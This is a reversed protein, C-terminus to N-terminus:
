AVGLLFQADDEAARIQIKELIKWMFAELEPELGEGTISILPQGRDVARAKSETLDIQAQILDKELQLIEDRRRNEADIWEAIDLAALGSAGAFADVLGVLTEGTNVFSESILDASSKFIEVAAEAEAIDLRAKWEVATQVTAAQAKIREIQTDIEGQLMIELRKETPIEDIKAKAADFSPKNPDAYIEIIGKDNIKALLGDAVQFSGDDVTARIDVAKDDPIASIADDFFKLDQVAQLTKAELTVAISDPIDNLSVTMAQVQEVVKRTEEEFEKTADLHSQTANGAGLLAAVWDFTADAADHFAPVYTDLTFGIAAGLGLSSLGALLPALAASAATIAGILGAGAATSGFASVLSVIQTGALLSIAGGLINLSSSLFGINEGILVISKAAGLLNGAFQQTAADSNRFEDIAAGLSSALPKLADIIGITTNTLATGSDVVKQLAAALGEPTSIDIEGFFSEFIGTLATGLGRFSDLLGTFDVNDFADPLNLAITRLDDGLEAAFDNIFDFIPAFTGQNVMNRLTQEIDTAGSIAETTAEKFQNGIATALNVFGERFINLQVEASALRAAVEESASGAAKMAIATIETSKGLNDFVEVMRGAQQIGVLQQAVFLKQNQDLSQFAISVDYLIDKGSRLAGNADTQSVGISALAERVPKSDDVLRLLGTKLAIAAESGSRFIEIIPTLVGATEELSFGMTRAIPALTSMGLGLQEVDTAYNNSVDNLIDILRAAETAPLQFGKLASVLIESAQAAELDGAIVLDLSNAALAMADNIDFGAQKFNATSALIDRASVGYKESLNIAADSAANLADVQDRGLVKQLEIVASEFEVSKAYAYALGGAALVAFAAEAKLVGDALDAWPRASSTVSSSLNDLRTGITSITSGVKDVGEFVIEVTRQIDAM